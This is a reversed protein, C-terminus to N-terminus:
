TYLQSSKAEKVRGDKSLNMECRENKDKLNIAETKYKTNGLGSCACPPEVAFSAQVERGELLDNEVWSHSVGGKM